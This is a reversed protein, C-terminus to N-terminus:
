ALISIGGSPRVNESESLDRPEGSAPELMSSTPASAFSRSTFSRPQADGGSSMSNSFAFGQHFNVPHLRLDQQQLNSAIGPLESSLLSRLDGKESGISVGVDNAHVTTRVEVSGFASTSLGIRMESESAKSVFRAMQVPSASTTQPGPTPPALAPNAAVPNGDANGPQIAGGGSNSNMPIVTAAPLPVATHSVSATPVSTQPPVAIQPISVSPDNNQLQSVSPDTSAANRQKRTSDVSSSIPSSPESTLDASVAQAPGVTSVFPNEAAPVSSQPASAVENTRITNDLGRTARPRVPVVPGAQDVQPAPSATSTASPDASTLTQIASVQFNTIKRIDSSSSPNAASASANASASQDPSPVSPRTQSAPVSPDPQTSSAEVAPGSSSQPPDLEIPRAADPDVPGTDPISDAEVPAPQSIGISTDSASGNTGHNSVDPFAVEAAPAQGSTAFPQASEVSIAAAPIGASLADDDSSLSGQLSAASPVAAFPPTVPVSSAEAKVDEAAAQPIMRTNQPTAPVQSPETWQSGFSPSGFARAAITGSSLTEPVVGNEGSQSSGASTTTSTGAEVTPLNSPPPASLDPIPTPVVALPLAVTLGLQTWNPAANKAAPKGNSIPLADAKLDGSQPLTANTLTASEQESTAVMAQQSFIALFSNWGESLPVNGSSGCSANSSNSCSPLNAIALPLSFTRDQSARIL